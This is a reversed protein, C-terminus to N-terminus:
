SQVSVIFSQFLYIFWVCSATLLVWNAETTHEHCGLLHCSSCVNAVKRTQSEPAFTVDDKLWQEMDVHLTKGAGLINVTACIPAQLKAIDARRKMYLMVLAHGLVRVGIGGIEEYSGLSSTVWGSSSSLSAQDTNKLVFMVCLEPDRDPTNTNTEGLIVNWINHKIGFPNKNNEINSILYNKKLFHELHNGRYDHINIIHYEHQVMKSIVYDLLWLEQVTHTHILLQDRPARLSGSLKLHIVERGWMRGCLRCVCM